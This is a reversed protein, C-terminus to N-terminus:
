LRDSLWTHLAKVDTSVIIALFCLNKDLAIDEATVGTFGQAGVAEDDGHVRGVGANATVLFKITECVESCTRIGSFM